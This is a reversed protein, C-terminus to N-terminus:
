KGLGRGTGADLLGRLAAAVAHPAELPALHGCAPVIHLRAAAARRALPQLAAVPYLRDQEGMVIATPVTLRPLLDGLGAFRTMVTRVTRSAARRDFGQFASVFSAIRAPHARRAAPAFMSRAVGNGWFRTAGIWRTGFVEFAHGGRSPALPTNLALVGRVRAPASIGAHVAIQGGWSCGAVFAREIGLADLVDIVAEAYTQPQVEGRPPDSQGFGPGDIRLVRWADALLPVVHDFLRHDSFLSPWFVVPIGAGHDALALAGVRTDVRRLPSDTQM